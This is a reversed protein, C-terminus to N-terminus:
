LVEFVRDELVHLYVILHLDELVRVDFDLVTSIILLSQGLYLLDKIIEGTQHVPIRLSIRQNPMKPLIIRRMLISIRHLQIFLTILPIINPM